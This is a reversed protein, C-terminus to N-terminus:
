ARPLRVAGHQRAPAPLERPHVALHPDGLIALRQPCLHRRRRAPRLRDLQDIEVLWMLVVIAALLLMGQGAERLRAERDRPRDGLGLWDSVRVTQRLPGATASYSVRRPGSAGSLRVTGRARGGPRSRDARRGLRRPRVGRAHARRRRPARARRDHAPDGPRLPQRRQRRRAGPSSRAGSCSRPPRLCRRPRRSPTWRRGSASWRRRSRRAASRRRSRPSCRRFADTDTRARPRLGARGLRARRQDCRRIPRDDARGDAPRPRSPRRRRHGRDRTRALALLANRGHQPASGSHAARGNARVRLTGAGKRRVIVGMRGRPVANVPRSACAPTTARSASSTRSRRLGGSRTASSCCRWSAFATLCSPSREPSRSCRGRRRGEHRRHRLRLTARRGARAATSRTPSSRTSTAWAAAAPQSGTGRIRDRDPRARLRRDLM